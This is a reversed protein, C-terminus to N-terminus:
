RGMDGNKRPQNIHPSVVSGCRERLPLGVM